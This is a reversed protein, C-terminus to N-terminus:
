AKGAATPIFEKNRYLVEEEQTREETEDKDDM